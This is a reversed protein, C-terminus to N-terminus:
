TKTLRSPVSTRKPQVFSPVKINSNLRRATEFELRAKEKGGLTHALAVGLNYHAQAFDPKLAISHECPAIAQVYESASVLANCLKFYGDFSNPTLRVVQGFERSAEKYQHKQLLDNGLNYHAEVHDPNIRLAKKYEAIGDDLRRARDFATALNRHYEANNPELQISRRFEIISEDYYGGTLGLAQGRRGLALGLGHHADSLNPMLRIAQRFEAIAEDYTGNEAVAEKYLASGLDFHAQALDPKLGIAKRYNAIGDSYQGEDIFVIGLSVYGEAFNPNLSLAYRIESIAEDRMGKRNLANGLNIHPSISTPGYKIAVRDEAIAEDVKGMLQLAAGLTLHADSLDPKIEIAKRAESAGEEYLGQSFLAWGLNTHAEASAPNLTIAERYAKEADDIHGTAQLTNGYTVGLDARTPAAKPLDPSALISAFERSAEDFSGKQYFSIALTCRALQVIDRPLRLEDPQALQAISFTGMSTDSSPFAPQDVITIWPEEFDALANPRLVFAAHLWRGLKVAEAHQRELDPPLLRELLRVKVINKLEPSARILQIIAAQYATQQERNQDGPVEAILIGVEGTTFPEPLGWYRYYYREWSALLIVGCVFTIWLYKDLWLQGDRAGQNWRYQVRWYLVSVVLVPPGWIPGFERILRIIDAWPM